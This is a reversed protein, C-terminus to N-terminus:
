EEIRHKKGNLIVEQGVRIQEIGKDTKMFDKYISGIPASDPLRKLIERDDNTLQSMPVETNQENSPANEIPSNSEIGIPRPKPPQSDPTRAKILADHGIKSVNVFEDLQKKIEEESRFGTPSFDTPDTVLKDLMQFEKGQMVGTNAMNKARAPWTINSYATQLAANEFPNHRSVQNYESLVKKYNAVSEVLKKHDAESQQVEAMDKNYTPHALLWEDKDQKNQAQTIKIEDLKNKANAAAEIQKARAEERIDRNEARSEQRDQLPTIFSRKLNARNDLQEGYNGGTSMPDYSLIGNNRRMGSPTHGTDRKLQENAQIDPDLVDKHAATQQENQSLVDLANQYGHHMSKVGSVTLPSKAVSRMYKGVANDSGLSDAHAIIGERLATGEEKADQNAMHRDLQNGIYGSVLNGLIGGLVHSREPLKPPEMPKFEPAKIEPLKDAEGPNSGQQLFSLMTALGVTNDQAM